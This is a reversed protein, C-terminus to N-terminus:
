NLSQPVILLTEKIRGGITKMTMSVFISLPVSTEVHAWSTPTTSKMPNSDVVNVKGCTVNGFFM